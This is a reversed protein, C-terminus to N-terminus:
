ATWKTSLSAFFISMFLDQSNIDLNKAMVEIDSATAEQVGNLIRSVKNRKWGVAEAFSGISKYKSLVAGRLTIGM